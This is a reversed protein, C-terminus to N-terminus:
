RTVKLVRTSSYKSSLNTNGVVKVRIKHKGKKLKPLKISVKGASSTRATKLKKKGDYVQVKLKAAKAHLSGPVTVTVKITAKQRSRVKKALKTSVKPKAKTVTLKTTGSSKEFGPTGSYGVSVTQKGASVAKTLKIAVQGRSLTASYSRGDIRLSVTGTPTAQTGSATVKVVAAAAANYAITSKGFSISVQTKANPKAVVWADALLWRALSTNDLYRGRIPDVKTGLATIADAGVGRYFFGVLQNTHNKINWNHQPLTGAPSGSAAPVIPSYDGKTAGYLYGTEHDATIVVLTDNWSSKAEVWDVVASVTADFSSVEELNRESQNAHGTWDIAGGEVMLFFGQQNNDLVNLAGKALTALDPVENFGAGAARAQQLTSGVQPVGFVRAPTDGSTLAQFDAKSQLFTRGTRGSSVRTWDEQSIYTFSGKTRPQHNDDYFPHGAGIVVDLASDLQQKAIAQYNNRNENHVSYSAPTAHSFPVSSVVGASKGLAKAREALNEVVKRDPDLGIAANYTKVGTAMATAAAASDTPNKKNWEWDTWSKQPDYVNGDKWHTSMALSQWAQWGQSPRTNQGSPAVQGDGGRQVQWHTTGSTAANWLDIENYGMGDGILVIVNKPSATPSAASAPTAVAISTGVLAISAAAAVLSRFALRNRM